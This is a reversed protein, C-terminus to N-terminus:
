RDDDNDKGGASTPQDSSIQRGNPDSNPTPTESPAKSEYFMTGSLRPADPALPGLGLGHQAEDDTIRGLSLQELIRNQRIALHAELEKPPRLDIENFSFKVFADVGYLRVGLTLARSMVEEVPGHLASAVKTYLLAEVTAVNQSGGLRLGLASPNSKLGSATLGALADMLQKYDAKEGVSQLSDIDVLDFLVLADQPELSSMVTEVTTRVSEMYDRMKEPDNRVEAPATKAVEEYKIKAVPRPAGSSRIVRRMDEMFEDFEVLRALGSALFSLAYVQNLTKMSEAVWVTPINLDIETGQGPRPNKAAQSPYRGGKGNSKWKITDYAFLQLRDPLRGVNLVLELGIGGTQAVELLAQELVTKVSPKDAYGQTYDWVTDWSAVLSQAALIADSSPIMTGTEYARITFGSMAMRVLSVIVSSVLGDSNYLSRLISASSTLSRVDKISANPNITNDTSLTDGREKGTAPVQTRAKGVVNRPLLVNGVEQAM